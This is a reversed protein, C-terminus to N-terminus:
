AGHDAGGHRTQRRRAADLVADLDGALLTRLHYKDRLAGVTVACVKADHRLWRYRDADRRLASLDHDKQASLATAANIAEGDPTTAMEP